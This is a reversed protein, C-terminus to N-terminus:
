ARHYPHKHLLSWARYLAEALLVRVLGHPLTLPSLSWSEEARERCAPALGDPGGVLLVRDRGEALWGQLRRALQETSWPKGREDLATVGAGGPIAALMRGGEEELWRRPDGKAARRAAPIETLTLVCDGSLRRAYEEFGENEWRPRRTGVALLQLRV